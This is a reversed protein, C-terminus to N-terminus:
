LNWMSIGNPEGPLLPFTSRSGDSGFIIRWVNLLEGNSKAQLDKSTSSGPFSNPSSSGILFHNPTLSEADQHDLSVYTLPHSNVVLSFAREVFLHFRCSSICINQCTLNYCSFQFKFYCLSSKFCDHRKNKNKYKFSPRVQCREIM